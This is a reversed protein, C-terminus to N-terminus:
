GHVVGEQEAGEFLQRGFVQAGQAVEGAAGAEVAAVVHGAQAVVEDRV